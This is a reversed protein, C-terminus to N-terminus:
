AFCAVHGPVRTMHAGQRGDVPTFVGHDRDVLRFSGPVAGVPEIAGQGSWDHGLATLIYSGSGQSQNTEVAEISDSGCTIATASFAGTPYAWPVREVVQWPVRDTVWRWPMPPTFPPLFVLMALMLSVAAAALRAPVSMGSWWERVRIQIAEAPDVYTAGQDGAVPEGLWVELLHKRHRIALAALQAGIVACALLLLGLLSNRQLEGWCRSDHHGALWQL